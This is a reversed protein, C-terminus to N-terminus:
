ERLLERYMTYMYAHVAVLTFTTLIFFIWQTLPTLWTIIPLMIIAAIVLLILPLCIIKRLVSWRRGRVLDRATRLAKIPAMDPLTVIYLAFFSSSIFRLSISALGAFLVLWIVREFLNVAIGNAIVTAYIATGIVLPLMQLSIVLLVLIFPILPYMSQYYADRLRFRNDALVQRLAWIVALSTIIALFIQYAGATPSSGNGASGVLVVFISLGSALSGFHGTFVQNLTHKLSNIDTGGALGKVLILNLVAYVLTIGVFIAKHQWLTQASLKTLRWANPLKARIKLRRPKAVAAQSKAASDTSKKATGKSVKFSGRRKSGKGAKKAM